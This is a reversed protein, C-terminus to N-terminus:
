NKFINNSIQDLCKESRWSGSPEDVLECHGVMLCFGWGHLVLINVGERGIEKVNMKINCPIHELCQQAAGWHARELAHAACCYQPLTEKTDACTGHSYLVRPTVDYLVTYRDRSVRHSAVIASAHKRRPTHSDRVYCNSYYATSPELLQRYSIAVPLEYGFFDVQSSQFDSKFVNLTSCHLSILLRHATSFRIPVLATFDLATLSNHICIPCLHVSHNFFHLCFSNM